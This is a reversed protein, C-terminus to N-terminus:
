RCSETQTQLGDRSADEPVLSPGLRLFVKLCAFRRRQEPLSWSAVSAESEQTLLVMLLSGPLPVERSQISRMAKTATKAAPM